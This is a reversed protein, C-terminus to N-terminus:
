GENSTFSSVQWGAGVHVGIYCGSWSFVPPPPPPAYKVRMDAALASGGANLAVLAVSALFLKKM